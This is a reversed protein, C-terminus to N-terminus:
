SGLWSPMLILATQAPLLIMDGSLLVSDSNSSSIWEECQYLNQINVANRGMNIVVQCLFNYGYTSRLSYSLSTNRAEIEYVEYMGQAAELIGRRVGLVNVLVESFDASLEESNWDIIHDNFLSLDLDTISSMEQDTFGFERNTIIESGYESGSYVFPISNPLLWTTMWLAKVVHAPPPKTDHNSAGAFYQAVFPNDSIDELAAKFSRICAEPQNWNAGVAFILPGVVGSLEEGRTDFDWLQEAIFGIGETSSRRLVERPLSASVDIVFFEEGLTQNRWTIVQPMLDFAPLDYDWVTTQLTGQPPPTLEVSYRVSSVDSWTYTEPDGAVPHPLANALSVKRDASTYIPGAPTEKTTITGPSPPEVFMSTFEQDQVRLYSSSTSPQAFLLRGAEAHWWYGLSPQESFLPSDVSLTTLPLISGPSINLIKCASILIQYQAVASIEPFFPDSLSEEISFPDRVSFPSGRTGKINTRGIQSTPLFIIRDVHLKERLFPLFAMLKLVTGINGNLSAFCRIHSQYTVGSSALGPKQREALSLISEVQRIYFSRESGANELTASDRYDLLFRPVFFELSGSGDGQILRDLLKELLIFERSRM